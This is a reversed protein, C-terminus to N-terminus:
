SGCTYLRSVSTCLPHPLLPSNRSTSALLRPRAGVTEMAARKVEVHGGGRLGAAAVVVALGGAKGGLIGSGREREASKNWM